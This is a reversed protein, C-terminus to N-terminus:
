ITRWPKYNEMVKEIRGWHPIETARLEGFRKRHGLNQYALAETHSFMINPPNSYFEETQRVTVGLNSEYKGPEAWSGVPTIEDNQYKAFREEMAEVFLDRECVLQSLNRRGKWSFMTPNWTYVGWVGLNYAFYGPKPRHKFHEETYLIDDEAFAVYKTKAAKAGILAQRYINLHSQPTDGVCINKGFSMPKKSVSVLPLGKIAVMLYQQTQSMFYTSLKNATYYVVSIDNKPELM